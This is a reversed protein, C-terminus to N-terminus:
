FRVGLVGHRNVGGREGGGLHGSVLGKRVDRRGLRLLARRISAWRRRARLLGDDLWGRYAREQARVWFCHACGSFELMQGLSAGKVLVQGRDFERFENTRQSLRKNTNKASSRDTAGFRGTRALSALMYAWRALRAGIRESTSDPRTAVEMAPM